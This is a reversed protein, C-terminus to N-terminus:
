RSKPVEALMLLYVQPIDSKGIGSLICKQAEVKTFLASISM